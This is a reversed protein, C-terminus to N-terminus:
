KDDMVKKTQKYIDIKAYLLICWFVIMLSLPGDHVEFVVLVRLLTAYIFAIMLWLMGPYKNLRWILYCYWCCLIAIPVIAINLIRLLTEM